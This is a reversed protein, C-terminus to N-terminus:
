GRSALYADHRAVQAAAQAFPDPAPPPERELALEALAM